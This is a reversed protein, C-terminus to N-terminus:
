AMEDLWAKAERLDETDFGETFWSYTEALLQHAAQRKGQRHWLRSLSIAARLELSKAQQQRTIELARLFYAEPTERTQRGGDVAKQLLEGKVRFLEALYMYEGTQDVLAEAEALGALGDEIQGCRGQVEAILVLYRVCGATNGHRRYATIAQRMVDIDAQRVNEQALAWHRLLRGETLGLQIQQESAQAVTAEALAGVARADRYLQYFVAGVHLGWVQYHPYALQQAVDLGEHIRTRARDPYGLYWLVIGSMLLCVIEPHLVGHIAHRTTPDCFTLGHELHHLASTLAVEHYLALGLAMHAERLMAPDQQTQALALLREALERATQAPGRVYYFHWLGRLTPFRQPTEEVSQCLAYARTYVQAVEPTDVGHTIMLIPGLAVHLDLEHHTREPSSPLTQVLALGHKLHAAAEQYAGKDFADQGARQWYAIAQATRGAAAAHHAVREPQTSVVEPFQEELVEVLRQHYHQRTQKLLSQYAADQILAHKFLYTAQPPVGRQYVIEAQVLRTLEQRLAVEDGHTVARLLAYSFERGITAGAQALGKAAGLRDLRAMLSDHLTAPIALEPAAESDRARGQQGQLRASEVVAKTMEEIFLPVGDTKAMIQQVVEAPLRQDGAIQDILTKVQAASLRDVVLPTLHARFGWPPQFSPRATLLTLISVTPGQDMLLSLLAFTSPDIWHVDEIIFLLPQQAAVRSLVALLVELTRQRRVEPAFLVPPDHEDSLPLAFLAALLPAAEGLPLGYRRLAQELKQRKVDNTDYREWQFLPPFAATLPHWASHQDYPSCRCALIPSGEDAVHAKVVQVLRSKGIGAEGSLIVTQGMGEKVRSWRELLRAVEAERGVLPTRAPRTGTELRSSSAAEPLVRHLMLSQTVGRLRQVGLPECRFDAQVLRYTAASVVVTHPAALDQIRAALTPTHGLALHAQPAGDGSDGVVVLGTHIGVRVALQVGTDPELQANYRECATLIGLGAHVARQPADEHALPYGFYVMLGAGLYPSMYGDFRAIVPACIQHYARVVQRYVEPDLQEALRTGDVLDCCMVTLQRREAAPMSMVAPPTDIDQATPTTPEAQPTDRPITETETLLTGLAEQPEEETGEKVSAIFRYGRGHLTQICRQAQGNDGVAKRVAMLCANLSGDGIFQKPWVQELLEDKSVVRDRHAILYRLVHFVKPRLKIPQHRYSLEYRQTDLRYEGFVYHMDRDSQMHVDM